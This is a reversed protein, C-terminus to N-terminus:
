TEKKDNRDMCVVLLHPILIRRGTIAIGEMFIQTLVVVLLALTSLFVEEEITKVAVVVLHHHIVTIIIM